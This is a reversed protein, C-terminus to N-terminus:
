GLDHSCMQAVPAQEFQEGRDRCLCGARCVRGVCENLAAIGVVEGGEGCVQLLRDIGAVHCWEGRGFDLYFYAQDGGHQVPNPQLPQEVGGGVDGGADLGVDVSGDRGPANRISPLM